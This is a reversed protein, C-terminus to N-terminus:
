TCVDLVSSPGKCKNKNKLRFCGALALSSTLSDIERNGNKDSNKKSM